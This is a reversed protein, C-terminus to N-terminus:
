YDERELTTVKAIQFDDYEDGQLVYEKKRYHNSVTGNESEFTFRENFSIHVDNTVHDVRYSEVQNETFHYSYTKNGDDATQIVEQLKTYADGHPVLFPMILAFNKTNLAENYAARYNMLTEISDEIINTEKSPQIEYSSEPFTFRVTEGGRALVPESYQAPSSAFTQMAYVEIEFDFVPSIESTAQVQEDDIIFFDYEEADPFFIKYEEDPLVFVQENFDSLLLARTASSSFYDNTGQLAIDYSDPVIANIQVSEGDFNFEKGGITLSANTLKSIFTLSTPVLSIDFSPIFFREQGRTVQLLKRGEQDIVYQTENTKKLQKVAENLEENFTELKEERVRNFFTEKNYIIEEDISLEQYFAADDKSKIANSITTIKKEVTKSAIIFYAGVLLALIAVSSIIFPTFRRAKNPACSPCKKSTKQLTAGCERCFQDQTSM